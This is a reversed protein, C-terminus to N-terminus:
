GGRLAALKTQAGLALAATRRTMPRVPDGNSLQTAKDNVQTAWDPFTELLEDLDALGFVALPVTEVTETGTPPPTTGPGAGGGSLTTAGPPVHAHPGTRALYETLTGLNSTIHNVFKAPNEPPDPQHTVRNIVTILVDDTVDTPVAYRDIQWGISILATQAAESRATNLRFAKSQHTKTPRAQTQKAKTNIPLALVNTSQFTKTDDLVPERMSVTQVPQSDVLRLGHQGVPSDGASVRILTNEHQGVAVPVVDDFDGPGFGGSPDVVAPAPAPTITGGTGFMAPFVYYSQPTSGAGIGRNQKAQIAIWGLAELRSLAARLPQVGLQTVESLQQQSCTVVFANADTREALGALKMLLGCDRCDLTTLMDVGVSSSLVVQLAPAVAHQLQLQPTVM